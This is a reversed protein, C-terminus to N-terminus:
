FTLRFVSDEIATCIHEPSHIPFSKCIILNRCLHCKHNPGISRTCYQCRNNFVLAALYRILKQIAITGANSRNLAKDWVHLWCQFTTLGLAHTTMAPLSTIPNLACTCTLCSFACTACSRSDTAPKLDSAVQDTGQCPLPLRNGSLCVLKTELIKSCPACSASTPGPGSAEFQEHVLKDRM